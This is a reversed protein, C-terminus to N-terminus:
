PKGASAASVSTVPQLLEPHSKLYSYIAEAAWRQGLNNWHGDFRYHSKSTDGHAAFSPHLDLLPINEAATLAKLRDIVLTDGFKRGHDLGPKGFAAGVEPLVAVLFHFHDRKGLGKMEHFIHGTISLAERFVPPPDETYFMTDMDTDDPPHWDGLKPAVAPDQKFYEFRAAVNAEYSGRDALPLVHDRWSPDIEFRRFGGATTDIEYHLQPSKYAGWGARISDLIPSNYALDPTSTLNIILDPQIEPGFTEYYSMQCSQGCADMGMSTTDYKLQSSGDNLMNELLVWFKDNINDMASAAFSNGLILIRFTNPPKPIVPERDLFGLSNVRQSVWYDTNNTHHLEAGPNFTFGATPHERMPWDERVFPIEFRLFIEVAAFGIAATAVLAWIGPLVVGLRRERWITVVFPAFAMVASVFTAVQLAIRGTRPNMWPVMLAYKKGNARPDSNDSASFHLTGQWLNYRGGGESQIDVHQQNGPGLKIWQVITENPYDAHLLHSVFYYIRTWGLAPKLYTLPSGPVQTGEFLLVKTSVKSETLAPDALEEIYDHGGNPRMEGLGTQYLFPSDIEPLQDLVLWSLGSLTALFFWLKPSM